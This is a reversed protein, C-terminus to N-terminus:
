STKARKELEKKVDVKTIKVKGPQRHFGFPFTDGIPAVWLYTGDAERINRQESPYLQVAEAQEGFIENKIRQLDEWDEKPFGNVPLINARYMRKGPEIEFSFLRVEYINNRYVSTADLAGLQAQTLPVHELKTWVRKKRRRRAM